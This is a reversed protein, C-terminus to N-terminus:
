LLPGTTAATSEHRDRKGKGRGAGAVNAERSNKAVLAM